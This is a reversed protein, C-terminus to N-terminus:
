VVSKRDVAIKIPNVTIIVQQNNKSGYVSVYFEGEGSLVSSPVACKDNSDLTVNTTTTGRTFQVTKTTGEWDDTFSFAATLYGQSDAVVKNVTTLHLRQNKVQFTLEM